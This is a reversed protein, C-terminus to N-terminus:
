ARQTRDDKSFHVCGKTLSKNKYFQCFGSDKVCNRRDDTGSCREDCAAGHLWSSKAGNTRKAVKHRELVRPKLQGAEPLGHDEAM